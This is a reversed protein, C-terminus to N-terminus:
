LLLDIDRVKLIAGIEDETRALSSSIRWHYLLEKEKIVGVVTHTNGIDIALLM